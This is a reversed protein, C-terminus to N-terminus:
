NVLKYRTLAVVARGLIPVLNAHGIEERASCFFIGTCLQFLLSEEKQKTKPLYRDDGEIVGPAHM